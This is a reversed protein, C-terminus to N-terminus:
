LPGRLPSLPSFFIIKPPHNPKQTEPPTHAPLAPTPEQASHPAPPPPEPQPPDHQLAAPQPLSCPALSGTNAHDPPGAPAAHQPTTPTTPTTHPPTSPEPSIIVSSSRSARSLPATSAPGPSTANRSRRRSSARAFSPRGRHTSRAAAN